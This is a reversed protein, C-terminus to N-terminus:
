IVSQYILFIMIIVSYLYDYSVTCASKIVGDKIMYAASTIDQFTLKHPNSELCNPDEVDVEDYM